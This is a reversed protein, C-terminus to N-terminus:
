VVSFYFCLFLFLWSRSSFLNCRCHLWRFRMWSASTCPLFFSRPAVLVLSVFFFGSLCISLHIFVFCLSHWLPLCFLLCHFLSLSLALFVSMSPSLSFLVHPSRSLSLCLSLSLLFSPSFSFHLPLLFVLPAAFLILPGIVLINAHRKTSLFYTKKM